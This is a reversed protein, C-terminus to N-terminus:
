FAIWHDKNRGYKKAYDEITKGSPVTNGFMKFALVKQRNEYNKKVEGLIRHNIHADSEVSLLYNRTSANDMIVTGLCKRLVSVNYVNLIASSLKRVKRRKRREHNHNGDQNSEERVTSSIEEEAPCVPTVELLNSQKAYNQINLLTSSSEGIVKRSYCIISLPVRLQERMLDNSHKGEPDILRWVYDYIKKKSFYKRSLPVFSNIQLVVNMGTSLPSVCKTLFLTPPFCISIHLTFIVFGKGKLFDNLTDRHAALVLPIIITFGECSIFPAGGRAKGTSPDIEVDFEANFRQRYQIRFLDDPYILFTDHGKPCASTASDIAKLLSHRCESSLKKTTDIMSAAVHGFQTTRNSSYEWCNSKSFGAHLVPSTGHSQESDTSLRREETFTMQDMLKHSCANNIHQHIEKLPTIPSNDPDRNLVFVGENQDDNSVTYNQDCSVHVLSPFSHPHLSKFQSDELGYFFKLRHYIEDASDKSAAMHCSTNLDPATYIQGYESNRDFRFVKDVLFPDFSPRWSTKTWSSGRRQHLIIICQDDYSSDKNGHVILDELSMNSFKEHLYERGSTPSASLGISPRM